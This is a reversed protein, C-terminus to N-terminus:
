DDPGIKIDLRGITTAKKSAEDVTILASCFRVDGTAVKMREYNHGALKSAATQCDMGIVSEYPGTMGLDSVYATGGPLIEADATPIHTHTGVVAAVRGALHWGLGRKESSAETHMDVLVIEAKGQMNALERDVTQFPCDVRGIFLQGEINIVGVPIGNKAEVVVSGAGPQRSPYNAPRLLRPHESIYSKIEKQDWIHNGTTIVDVGIAFLKESFKPNIGRGGVANEGNAVVFDLRHEKILGPLLRTVAKRGPEGFIDGIMLIKM